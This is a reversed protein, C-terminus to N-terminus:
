ELEALEDLVKETIDLSKNAYAINGDVADFIYSYNNEIAIKELIGTIRDLLPKTLNENSREARGGPGFIDNTFKQLAAKKTEIEDQKEKLPGPSLVLRKKELETELSDVERQMDLGEQNWDDIEKNFQEQAEQFEKYEQRIRYSDIYVIREDQALLEGAAPLLLMAFLASVLIMSNVNVKKM